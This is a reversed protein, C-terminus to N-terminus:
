KKDNVPWSFTWYHIKIHSYNIAAPNIYFECIIDALYGTDITLGSLTYIRASRLLFLPMENLPYILVCSVIIGRV